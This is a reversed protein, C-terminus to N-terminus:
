LLFDQDIKIAVQGNKQGMYGKFFTSDDGRLYIPTRTSFPLTICMGEKWSSLEWLSWPIKPFEGTIEIPTMHINSLLKKHFNNEQEEEFAEFKKFANDKNETKGENIYEIATEPLIMTIKGGRTGISLQIKHEYCRLNADCIQAFRSNTELRELINEKHIHFSQLVKSFKELLYHIINELVSIEITTYSRNIKDLPLGAQHWAGFLLEIFSYFLNNDVILLAKSQKKENHSANVNKLTFIGILSPLEIENLAQAFSKMTNEQASIEGNVNTFHKITSVLHRDWEELVPSLYLMNPEDKKEHNILLMLGSEIKKSTKQSSTPSSDGNSKQLLDFSPPSFQEVILKNIVDELDNMTQNTTANKDNQNM